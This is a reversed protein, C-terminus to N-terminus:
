LSQMLLILSDTAPLLCSIKRRIASGSWRSAIFTDDLGVIGEDLYYQAVELKFYQMILGIIPERAIMLM